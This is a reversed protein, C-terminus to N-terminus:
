YIGLLSVDNELAFREAKIYALAGIEFRRRQDGEKVNKTPQAMTITRGQADEKGFLFGCGENPFDEELHSKMTKFAEENLSFSLSKAAEPHIIDTNYQAM